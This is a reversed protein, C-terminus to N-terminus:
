EIKAARTELDKLYNKSQKKFYGELNTNERMFMTESYLLNSELCQTKHYKQRMVNNWIREQNTKKAVLVKGILFQKSLISRWKRQIRVVLELYDPHLAQSQAVLQCLQHHILFSSATVKRVKILRHLDYIRNIAVKKRLHTM